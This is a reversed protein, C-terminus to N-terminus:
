GENEDVKRRERRRYNRPTVGFHARFVRIFYGDTSFGCRLAVESIPLASSNLLALASELRLETLYRSFGIGFERRFLRSLNAPSIDFHRALKELSIPSNYNQTLHFKIRRMLDPRSPSRGSVKPSKPDSREASLYFLMLLGHLQVNMSFIDFEGSDFKDYLFMIRRMAEARTAFDLERLTRNGVRAFFEEAADWQFQVILVRLGRARDFVDRHLEGDRVVLFDGAGASFRQGKPFELTFRGELVYLLENPSADHMRDSWKSEFNRVRFFLIRPQQCWIKGM